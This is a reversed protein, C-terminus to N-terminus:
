NKGCGCDSSTIKHHDNSFAGVSKQIRATSEKPLTGNQFSLFTEMGGALCFARPDGAKKLAVLIGTQLEGAHDLFLVNKDKEKLSLVEFIKAELSSKEISAVVFGGTDFGKPPQTFSVFLWDKKNKIRALRDRAMLGLKNVEFLDGELPGDVLHWGYLGHQLISVSGFGLAKLKIAVDSLDTLGGEVLVLSERKLYAKTKLSYFPLNLSGPIHLSRFKAPERLDILILGSQNHIAQRSDIINTEAAGSSKEGREGHGALCIPLFLFGAALIMFLQLRIKDTPLKM